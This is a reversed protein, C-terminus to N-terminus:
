IIVWSLFEEGKTQDIYSQGNLAVNHLDSISKEHRSWDPELSVLYPLRCSLSGQVMAQAAEWTVQHEM